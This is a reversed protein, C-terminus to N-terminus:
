GKFLSGYPVGVSANRRGEGLDREALRVSGGGGPMQVPGVGGRQTPSPAPPHPGEALGSLGQGRVTPIARRRRVWALRGAEANM